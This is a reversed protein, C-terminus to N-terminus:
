INSCMHGGKKFREVKTVKLPRAYNVGHVDPSTRENTCRKQATKPQQIGSTGGLLQPVSVMQPDCGRLSNRKVTMESSKALKATKDRLAHTAEGLGGLFDSKTGLFLSLV